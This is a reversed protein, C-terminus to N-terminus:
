QTIVEQAFYLETFTIYDITIHVDRWLQKKGLLAYSLLAVYYNWSIKYLLM